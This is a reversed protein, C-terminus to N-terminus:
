LIWDYHINLLFAAIIVVAFFSIMFLFFAGRRKLVLDTRKKETNKLIEDINSYNLFDYQDDMFHFASSFMFYANLEKKCEPCTNIHDAFMIEDKLSLKGNIYDPNLRGIEECTFDKIKKTKEKTRKTKM